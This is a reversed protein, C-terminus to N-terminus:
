GPLDVLSRPLKVQGLTVTHPRITPTLLLLLLLLVDQELGGQKVM